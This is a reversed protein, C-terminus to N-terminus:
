SAFSGIAADEDEYIEMVNELATLRLVDRVRSTDPVVFKIVGGVEKARNLSAITEGITSSDIYPSRTLNFVFRREGAELAENFGEKLSKVADGITIYGRFDVVVVGSKQRFEISM